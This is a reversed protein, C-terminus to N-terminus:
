GGAAGILSESTLIPNSPQRRGILTWDSLLASDSIVVRHVISDIERRSALTDVSEKAEWDGLLPRAVSFPIALKVIPGACVLTTLKVHMGRSAPSALTAEIVIDM